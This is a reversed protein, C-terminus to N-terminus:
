VELEAIAELVLRGLPGAGGTMERLLELHKRAEDRRGTTKLYIAENFLLQPRFVKLDSPVRALLRAAEALSGEDGRALLLSVANTCADWRTEDLDVAQVYRDLAEESDGDEEELLAAVYAWQARESTELPRAELRDVIARVAGTRGTDVLMQAAHLQVAPSLSASSQVLGDVAEDVEGIAERGPFDDSLQSTVVVAMLDLLANVADPHRGRRTIRSLALAGIAWGAETYMKVVNRLPRPDGPNAAYADAFAGLAGANDSRQWRVRGIGLLAEANMPDGDLVDRWTREAEDLKGVRELTQALGRRSRFSDDRNLAQRALREAQASDGRLLWALALFQLGLVNDREHALAATAHEFTQGADERAAGIAAMGLHFRLPEEDRFARVMSVARDVDGELVQAVLGDVFKEM